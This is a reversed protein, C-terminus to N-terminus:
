YHGGTADLPSRPHSAHGRICFYYEDSPKVQPQLKPGHPGDRLLFFREFYGRYGQHVINTPDCITRRFWFALEKSSGLVMQPARALIVSNTQGRADLSQVIAGKPNSRILLTKLPGTSFRLVLPTDPHLWDYAVGNIPGTCGRLRFQSAPLNWSSKFSVFLRGQPIKAVFGSYTANTWLKEPQQGTLQRVTTDIQANCPKLPPSLNADATYLFMSNTRAHM